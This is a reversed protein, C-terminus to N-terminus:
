EKEVKQIAAIPIRVRERDGEFLIAGRSSDVRILGHDYQGLPVSRSRNWFERALWAVPIAAPDDIAVLPDPRGMLARRLCAIEFRARAKVGYGRQDEGFHLYSWIFTVIGGAVFIGTIWHPNVPLAAWAVLRDVYIAALLTAFLIAFPICIAASQVGAHIMRARNRLPRTLARGAWQVPVPDIRASNPDASRRAEDALRQKAPGAIEQIGPFCSVLAAAEHPALLYPGQNNIRLFVDSDIEGWAASPTFWAVLEVRPLGASPNVADGTWDDMTGSTLAAHLTKGHAPSLIRDERRMWCNRRESFPEAAFGWGILIALGASTLTEFALHLTNWSILSAALPMQPVVGPAPPLAAIAPFGEKGPAWRDTALRFGIYGPLRDVGSWPVGWRLCQDAHFHLTQGAIIATAGLLCAFLRNRIKGARIFVRTMFVATMAPFMAFIVAFHCQDLAVQLLAALGVATLCWLTLAIPLRGLAIRNSPAYRPRALKFDM